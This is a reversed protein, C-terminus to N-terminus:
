VIKFSSYTSCWQKITMNCLVVQNQELVIHYLACVSVCVPIVKICCNGVEGSMKVFAHAAEQYMTRYKLVESYILM